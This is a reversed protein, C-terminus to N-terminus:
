FCYRFVLKERQSGAVRSLDYSIAPPAHLDKLSDRQLVPFTVGTDSVVCREVNRFRTGPIVPESPLNRTGARAIPIQTQGGIGAVLDGTRSPFPTDTGLFM